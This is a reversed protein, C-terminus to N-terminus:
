KPRSKLSTKLWAFAQCSLLDQLTPIAIGNLFIFAIPLGIKTSVDEVIPIVFSEGSKLVVSVFKEFIVKCRHKELATDTPTSSTLTKGLRMLWWLVFMISGAWSEMTNKGLVPKPCRHPKKDYLAKASKVSRFGPGAGAPHFKAFHESWSEWNKMLWQSQRLDTVSRGIMEQFDGLRVFIKSGQPLVPDDFKWAYFKLHVEQDSKNDAAYTKPVFTSTPVSNQMSAINFYFHSGDGRIMTQKEFEKFAEVMPFNGGHIFVPAGCSSPVFKTKALLLVQGSEDQQLYLAESEVSYSKKEGTKENILWQLDPGVWVVNFGAGLCPIPAPTPAAQPAPTPSVQLSPDPDLDLM